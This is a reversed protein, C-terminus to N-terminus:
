AIIMGGGQGDLRGHAAELDDTVIAVEEGIETYVGAAAYRLAACDKSHVIGIVDDGTESIPRRLSGDQWNNETIEFGSFKFKDFYDIQLTHREQLYATSLFAVDAALPNFWGVLRGGCRAAMVVGSMGDEFFLGMKAHLSWSKNPCGSKITSLCDVSHDFSIGGGVGAFLEGDTEPILDLIPLGILMFSAIEKPKDTTRMLPKAIVSIPGLIGLLGKGITLTSFPKQRGCYMTSLMYLIHSRSIKGQRRIEHGFEVCMALFMTNGYGWVGKLYANEQVLEMSVLQEMLKYYFGFVLAQYQLWIDMNEKQEISLSLNARKLYELETHSHLWELCDGRVGEVLEEVALFITESREPFSRGALLIVEKAFTSRVNDSVELNYYIESEKSFPLQANAHIHMSSAARSGLSWFHNMNMIISRSAPLSNIMSSPDHRSYAIQQATSGIIHRFSSQNKPDDLHHSKYPINLHDPEGIYRVFPETEYKREGDTRLQVGVKGMAVAVAFVMVSMADFDFSKDELLWVLFTEMEKSEALNLQPLAKEELIKYHSGRMARTIAMNISRVCGSSRWSEINIPLLVRLCDELEQDRDLVRTYVRRILGQVGTSPLCLDLAAVITVMLWSFSSLNAATEKTQAQASNDRHNGQYIFDIRSWKKEMFSIDVLDRRKLLTEQKEGISSLLEEDNSATRLWNGVRRGQNVILAVDSLSIGFELLQATGVAISSAM